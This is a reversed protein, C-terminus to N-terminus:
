ETLIRFYRNWETMELNWVCGSPTETPPEVVREWPGLPAIAEYLHAGDVGGPWTLRLTGSGPDRTLALRVSRLGPVSLRLVASSQDTFRVAVVTDGHTNAGRFPDPHYVAEVTRHDEHGLEVSDGTQLLSVPVASPDMDMYWLGSRLSLGDTSVASFVSQGPGTGPLGVPLITGFGLFRSEDSEGLIPEGALLLLQKEEGYVRWVAPRMPGDVLDVDCRLLLSDDPLFSFSASQLQAVAGEYSLFFVSEGDVAIWQVLAGPSSQLGIGYIWEGVEVELAARFVLQGNPGFRPDSVWAVKDALGLSLSDGTGIVRELGPIGSLTRWLGTGLNGSGDALGYSAIFAIAGNLDMTADLFSRFVSGMSDTAEMGKDAVFTM